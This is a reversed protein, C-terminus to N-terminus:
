RIHIESQSFLLKCFETPSAFSSLPTGRVQFTFEESFDYQRTKRAAVRWTYDGALLNDVVASYTSGSEKVASYSRYRTGEQRVQFFVGSVSADTSVTSELRLSARDPAFSSAAIPEAVAYRFNVRKQDNRVMEWASETNRTIQLHRESPVEELTEGREASVLRCFTISLHLALFVGLYM